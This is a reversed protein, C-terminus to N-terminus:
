LGVDIQQVGDIWYENLSKNKRFVKAPKSVLVGNIRVPDRHLKGNKYFWKDGDKMIIAPKDGDRHCVGNKYWYQYGISSIINPEDIIIGSEHKIPERYLDKWKIEHQGVKHKVNNYYVICIYNSTSAVYCPLNFM